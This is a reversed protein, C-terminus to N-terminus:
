AIAELRIAIAELRSAMAELRNVLQSPRWGVILRTAIAELRGPSGFHNFFFSVRWQLFHIKLCFRLDAVM